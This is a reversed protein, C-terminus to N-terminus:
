HQSLSSVQTVVQQLLNCINSIDDITQDTLSKTSEANALLEESFASISEISKGIEENKLMVDDMSSSQLDSEENIQRIGEKIELFLRNAEKTSILQKENTSILIEANDSANNSQTVLEEIIDAINVTAEQTQEALKKIELAVVSFGKGAEGAHAAEISANLSLLTTQSTIDEIIDLIKKADSSKAKLKEMSKNVLHGASQAEESLKELENMQNSGDAALHLTNEVVCGVQEISKHTQALSGTIAESMSLQTQITDALDNTGNSIEEMSMKNQESSNSMDTTKDYILDVNKKVDNSATIIQTLLEETKSKEKEIGSIRNNAINELVVSTIYSFFNVLVVVAIEIEYNTIDAAASNGKNINIIVNLVNIAFAMFGTGLILWRRQYMLLLIMVPIIYTFSIITNTTLLVFGYLVLGYGVMVIYKIAESEKNKFYVASTAAFPILLAALFEILYPLTRNGKVFELIYAATLVAAIIRYGLLVKKNCLATESRERKSERTIIMKKM